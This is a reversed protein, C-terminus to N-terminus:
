QIEYVINFSISAFSAIATTGDYLLIEIYSNSPNLFVACAKSSSYLGSGAWKGGGLSQPTGTPIPVRLTGSATGKDTIYVLGSYVRIKGFTTTRCAASVTTFTGSSATPTPASTSASPIQLYQPHDNDGLGTLNGHDHSHTSTALGGTLNELSIKKSTNVSTDVIELYDDSAAETLETLDTIKKNAM